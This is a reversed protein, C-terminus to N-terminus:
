RPSYNADEYITMPGNVLATPRQAVEYQSLRRMAQAIVPLYVFSDEEHLWKAEPM